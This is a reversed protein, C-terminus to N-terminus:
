KTKKKKKPAPLLDVEVTYDIQEKLEAILKARTKFPSDGEELLATAGMEIKINNYDGTNITRGLVVSVSKIKM